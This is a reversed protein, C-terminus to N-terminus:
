YIKILAEIKGFREFKERGGALGRWGGVKM